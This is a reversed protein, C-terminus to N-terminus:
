DGQLDTTDPTSGGLFEDSVLWTVLPRIVILTDPQYTSDLSKLRVIRYHKLRKFITMREVDTKPPERRIQTHLAMLLAEYTVIIEADEDLRGDNVGELYLFKLALAFAVTDASVRLRPGPYLDRQDDPIGPITSAPPYLLLTFFKEVHVLKYGSVFLYDEILPLVRMALDYADKEVASDERCIVGYSFLRVALAQFDAQTVSRPLEDALAQSFIM